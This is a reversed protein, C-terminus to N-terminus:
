TFLTHQALIRTTAVRWNTVGNRCFHGQDPNDVREDIRRISFLNQSRDPRKHLCLMGLACRIVGFVRCFKREADRCSDNPFHQRPFQLALTLRARKKVILTSRHCLGSNRIFANLTTTRSLRVGSSNKQEALGQPYGSDGFLQGSHCARIHPAMRM